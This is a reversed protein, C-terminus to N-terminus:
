QLDHVLRPVWRVKQPAKAGFWDVAENDPRKEEMVLKIEMMTMKWGDEKRWPRWSDLTLHIGKLYTNIIPYTRGLYVLFGRYSELKKFEITTSAEMSEGIWEIILKAKDWREQSVGVMVSSDSYVFSGAWPGPSKRPDRRKRCADQLGLWNMVSAVRRSALRAEWLCNGATRADDVYVVFDCAIKSDDIRVKYVWPLWPKYSADGPLNLVVKSWRFINRPDLPDGRAIEEAFLIGQITNYPSNKFGMGCRTWHEWIVRLDGRRLLEEPFFATLDVGALMQLREHMIFNHFMDGIDIDGMYTGAGVFRLHDEVTPLAFWPAWMADNLGSKTGDYVMRIDSEGKPVAFFSTLSKVTGPVVYRLRRIKELKKRMKQRLEPDRELRQPVQWRPLTKRFWPTVGDRIQRKYEDSWRWFHPRSGDTWEWWTAESCRSICERGAEWDKLSEQHSGLFGHIADTWNGMSDSCQKLKEWLKPYEKWFWSM